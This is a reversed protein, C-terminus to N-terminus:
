AASKVFGTTDKQAPGKARLGVVVGTDDKFRLDSVDGDIVPRGIYSIPLPDPTLKYGNAPRADFVVAVNHGADLYEAARQESDPHESISFTLLYNAIGAVKRLRLPWKTYDYFQMEAFAAFIHPYKIGKRTVPFREWPIDSTGNLRATPIMGEREARRMHLELERVLQALFAERDEHFLQTRRVRADQIRNTKEGKLFIGSRGARNLCSMKCGETAHPCVNRGSLKAPAFHLIATLYNLGRGKMTKPNATTLLAIGM